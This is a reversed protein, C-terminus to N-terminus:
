RALLVASLARRSAAEPTFGLKWRIFDVIKRM